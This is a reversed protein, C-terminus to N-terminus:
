KSILFRNAKAISIVILTAIIINNQLKILMPM